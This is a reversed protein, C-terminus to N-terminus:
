IAPITANEGDAGEGVDGELVRLVVPTQSSRAYWLRPRAVGNYYPRRARLSKRAWGLITGAELLGMAKRIGWTGASLPSPLSAPSWPIGPLGTHMSASSQNDFAQRLFPRRGPRNATTDFHIQSLLGSLM